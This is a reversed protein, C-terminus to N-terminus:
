PKPRLTEIFGADVWYIDVETNNAPKTRRDFFLYKGDPSVSPYNEAAATNIKNGLNIAPGWSGDTARYSIYLDSTGYGGERRSDWIVYSEDPAIFPHANYKGVAFQPGLSKPEEYKGDILRSYRLPTDLEPTFSDFYYTGNSSASLRMIAIDKFPIGLPKLESWGASTREIYEKAFHITMGDPSISPESVGRKVVSEQWQGNKYEIAALVNSAPEEGLSRKVFYFSKMDAAFMGEIERNEATNVIGPAFVEATPGPLKQGLYPSAATASSENKPRLNEIVQADVWFIDVNEYKESGMNRNFFLYKGDPTVSAAAEWAGTNIKDGLNIAKGWAGDGERFSIYIDSDGYGGKRKADWILYSEDPAIFPHSIHTGTNIDKSLIKPAERKGDILPSYRIPFSSNKDDYTDFYYTGNMSATLRMIMMDEFPPALFKVDSWRTGIREKYRRGLHMTKGDPAIIPQGVRLSVESKVWRNNDYKFTVSEHKKTEANERLFYIEKMDPTFVAGYEWGKTSVIGPAFPEPTSGPPNQGLYPGELVPPEDNAHSGSSVTLSSLLLIISTSFRKM